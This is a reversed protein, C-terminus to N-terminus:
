LFWPFGSSCFCPLHLSARHLLLPPPLSAWCVRSPLFSTSPGFKGAVSGECTAVFRLVEVFFVVLVLFGYACSPFPSPSSPCRARRLRDALGEPQEASPNVQLFNEKNPSFVALWYSIISVKKGYLYWNRFKQFSTLLALNSYMYINTINLKNLQYLCSNIPISFHSFYGSITGIKPEIQLFILIDM